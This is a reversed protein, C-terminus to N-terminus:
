QGGERRKEEMEKNKRMREANQAAEIAAEKAELAKEEERQNRNLEEKQIRAHYAEIKRDDDDSAKFIDLNYKQRDELQANQPDNLIRRLSRMYVLDYQKRQEAAAKRSASIEKQIAEREEESATRHQTMLAQQEMSGQFIKRQHNENLRQLSLTQKDDLKYLHRMNQTRETAHSKVRNEMAAQRDTPQAVLVSSMMLTFIAIALTSISTQFHMM